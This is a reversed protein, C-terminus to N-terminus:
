CEGELEIVADVAVVGKGRELAMVPNVDLSRLAPGLACALDGVAVAAQALADADLPPIDRYGSFLPAIRLSGIAQRAEEFTFPALLTVVDRRIEVLTGGDGIMVLPGFTADRSAGLVFEHLGRVHRAVLVKPDEIKLRALTAMHADFAAVIEQRERLNTRVLGLESKHPVRAACGKVVVPAGLAEFAALVEDHTRCVRHPVVPVGHTALLALSEQEDLLGRRLALTGDPPVASRQTIQAMMRAHASYQHLAQVADTESTFVPLGAAKFLARVASQPASVVVPKNKERACAAAQAALRPVDYGPGAVPVGVLLQDVNGDAALANLVEPFIGGQGLLAATVDLPNAVTAFDPLAAGVRAKTDAALDSLPLGIREAADACLVGVAGSHSMVVTRGQRPPMADVYLPAANVLEHIDRARWIGHRSLFADLGADSAIMAGTHSAAASAGRASVGGKLLVIGAGHGRAIRSAEALLEPEALSEAYVLILRIDPDGAVIKVVECVGLDADNGTAALYRVGLGMERLRVYPMVSAAGSQSIIAIPGDQPACEMFMTSFNLVAGTAFNAVGQANPGILRMGTQRALALMEDQVQRGRAGTEAFGSAMVVANRVGRRACAEISAVADSGSVAIIAADVADPVEDLSPFARRGQVTERAPNIPFIEGKFGFRSLYHIPRGGVKNPNDSAGFVAVASPNFLLPLSTGM